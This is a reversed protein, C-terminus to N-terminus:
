FNQNKKKKKIKFYLFFNLYKFITSFVHKNDYILSTKM